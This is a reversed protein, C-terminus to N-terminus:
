SEWLAIRILSNSLFQLTLNITNLAVKLLIETIYSIQCWGIKSHHNSKVDMKKTNERHWNQLIFFDSQFNYRTVVGYSKLIYINFITQISHLNRM